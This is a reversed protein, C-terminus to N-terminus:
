EKIISDTDAYGYLENLIQKKDLSFYEALIITLMSSRSINGNRNSELDLLTIFDKSICISTTRVKRAM